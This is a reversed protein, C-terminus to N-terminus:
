TQFPAIGLEERLKVQWEEPLLDILRVECITAIHYYHVMEIRSRESEWKHYAVQSVGLLRAMQRQTLFNETRYQLLIDSIHMIETLALDGQVPATSCLPPSYPYSHHIISYRM